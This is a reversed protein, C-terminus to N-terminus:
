IVLHLVNLYQQDNLDTTNKVSTAASAPARQAINDTVKTVRGLRVDAYTYTSDRICM